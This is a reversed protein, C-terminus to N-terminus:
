PHEVKSCVGNAAVLGEQVPLRGKQVGRRLVGRSARVGYREAARMPCTEERIVGKAEVPCSRQLRWHQKRVQRTGVARHAGRM